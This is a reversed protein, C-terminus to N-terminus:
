SDSRYIYFLFLVFFIWLILNAYIYVSFDYGFTLSGENRCEGFFFFIGRLRFWCCVNNISLNYYFIERMLMRQFCGCHSFVIHCDLFLMSFSYSWCSSPFPPLHWLAAWLSNTIMFQKNIMQKGFNLWHSITLIYIRDDQQTRMSRM